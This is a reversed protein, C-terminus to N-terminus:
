KEPCDRNDAEEDDTDTAKPKNLFKSGWIIGFTAILATVAFIVTLVHNNDTVINYQLDIWIVEVGDISEVLAKGEDYSMCFLATSLADALGSNETIVTISSFYAAPMLTDPDIIHHYNVGDVTYYREYNGSTVMSTDKIEKECIIGQDSSRDPNTIGVTWSEGPSKEGIARINGGINLVYATVGREKLMEAVKETAYGKGIAGVDLRMDPDALYVTGAEKDIILDNIDCHKSAEELAAADPVRANEPDEIADERCDHWLSLVAGMAINTKGNTLTYLEKAYLLFEILLPDVEVPSKGARSNVTSLNNMGSYGFYIDFLKHYTNLLEAVATHNAEFEEDTDGSFSYIYSVTDFYEFYVRYKPDAKEAGADAEVKTDAGTCGATFAVAFSILILLILAKLLSLKKM